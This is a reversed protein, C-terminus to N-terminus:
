GASKRDWALTGIEGGEEGPTGLRLVPQRSAMRKLHPVFAAAVGGEDVERALPVHGDDEGVAVFKGADVLLGGVEGIRAQLAAPLIDFGAIVVLREVM